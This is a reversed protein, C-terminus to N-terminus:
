VVSTRWRNLRRKFLYLTRETQAIPFSSEIDFHAAFAEHFGADTYDSFIDRRSRLLAQAMVDTKPVYEILVYPSLQALFAALNYIPINGTIRLHHLLALAMVLDPKAREIFNSREDIAFGLAPTPNTLDLLLPLIRPNKEHHAAEYNGHVCLPDIDCSICYAGRQSALRSYTGVNGGFDLVVGPNVLELANIVSGKKSEEAANSYHKANKEYYDIWETEEHRM